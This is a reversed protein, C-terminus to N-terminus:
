YKKNKGALKKKGFHFLPLPPAFNSSSIIFSKKQSVWFNPHPFNPLLRPLLYPWCCCCFLGFKAGIMKPPGSLDGGMWNAM